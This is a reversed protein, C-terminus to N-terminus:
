RKEGEFYARVADVVAQKERERRGSVEHSYCWGGGQHRPCVFLEAMEPVPMGCLSCPDRGPVDCSARSIPLKGEDFMKRIFKQDEEKM